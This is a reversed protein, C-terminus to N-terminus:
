SEPELLDPLGIRDLYSSFRQNIKERFLENVTAFYYNRFEQKLYERSVHYYIKFDIILKPIQYDMNRPLYHYREDKNQIIIKRQKRDIHKQIIGFEDKLHNGDILSDIPFAPLILVNPLFQNDQILKRGEIEITDKRKFCWELDCDQSLVIVYPFEIKTLEIIKSNKKKRGPNATYFVFDRLLDGQYIRISRHKKYPSKINSKLM